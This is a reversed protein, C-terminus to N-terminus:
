MAVESKIKQMQRPKKATKAPKTEDKTASMTPTEAPIESEATKAKEEEYILKGVAGETANIMRQSVSRIVGVNDAFKAVTEDDMDTFDPYVLPQEELHLRKAVTYAIASMEVNRVNDMESPSLGQFNRRDRMVVNAAAVQKILVLLTDSKSLDSRTSITKNLTDLVGYSEDESPEHTKFEYGKLSEMLAGKVTDYYKDTATGDAFIDNLPEGKTQSVDYVYDVEYGTVKDLTKETINGKDDTSVQTAFTPKIIRISKQDKIISRKQYNWARMRNVNTANPNQMLILMQNRLSYRGLTPMTSILDKFKGEKMFLLFEADAAASMDEPNYKLKKENEM